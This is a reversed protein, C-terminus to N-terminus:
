RTAWAVLILAGAIARPLVHPWDEPTIIPVTIVTYACTLFSLIEIANAAQPQTDIYLAGLVAALGAVYLGQNALLLNLTLRRKWYPDVPSLARQILGVAGLSYGVADLLMFVAAILFLTRHAM